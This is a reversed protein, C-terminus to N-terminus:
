VGLSSELAGLHSRLDADTPEMEKIKKCAHQITSHDRGGFARGLDPFSLNTHKRALYMAVQRPVVIGKLKRDGVLDNVKVNYYRAVERLIKEPTIAQAEEALM